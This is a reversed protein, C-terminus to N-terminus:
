WLEMIGQWYGVGPVLVDPLGSAQDSLRVGAYIDATVTGPTTLDGTQERVTCLYGDFQNNVTVCSFVVHGGNSTHVETTYGGS